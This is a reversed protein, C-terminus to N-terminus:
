KHDPARPPAPCPTPALGAAAQKVADFRDNPVTIALNYQVIKWADERKILVGSGRSPGLNPADLDEDFWAIKGGPDVTIVRRIAKFSWAKGKAFHPHAYALFAAKDWRETADTGLFVADDVLHGFYHAEDAHAAADHFSDLVAAITQRDHTVAVIPADASSRPAAACSLTSLSALLMSFLALLAPRMPGEYVM